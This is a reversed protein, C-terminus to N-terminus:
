PCTARGEALCDCIATDGHDAMLAELKAIERVVMARFLSSRWYPAAHNFPLSRAELGCIEIMVANRALHRAIQKTPFSYERPQGRATLSGLGLCALALAIRSGTTAIGVIRTCRVHNPRRPDYSTREPNRRGPRGGVFAGRTRAPHSNSDASCRPLSTPSGM